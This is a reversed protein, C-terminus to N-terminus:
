TFLVMNDLATRRISETCSLGRKVLNEQKKQESGVSVSISGVFLTATLCIIATLNKM